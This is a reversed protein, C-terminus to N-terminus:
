RSVERVVGELLLASVEQVTRVTLANFGEFRYTNGGDRSVLRTGAPITISCVGLCHRLERTLEYSVHM